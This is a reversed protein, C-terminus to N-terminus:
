INQPVDFSCFYVLVALEGGEGGGGWGVGIEIWQASNNFNVKLGTKQGLKTLGLEELRFIHSSKQVRKNCIKLDYIQM